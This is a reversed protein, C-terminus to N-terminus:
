TGSTCTDRTTPDPSCSATGVSRSRRFNGPPGEATAVTRGTVTDYLTVAGRQAAATIQGDPSFAVARAAGQTRLLRPIDGSGLLGGVAQETHSLRYAQVLLQRALDPRTDQISAAESVLQRSQAALQRELATARQDNAILGLTTAVVLLTCLVVITAAVLHNRRRRLRVHHGILEAKSRGQIPAVFEAVSAILQPDRVSIPGHEELQARLWRLDVWRPTGPSAALARETETQPLADTRSWDFGQTSQDWALTGDTWAILMREGRRHAAWWDIEARVWDSATAHPSAMVILWASRSLAHEIDGRLDRSAHLHTTDRFVRLQTPRYWPRAFNEMGRQFTAAVENDLNQSYSIFVDYGAQTGAGDVMRGGGGNGSRGTDTWEQGRM